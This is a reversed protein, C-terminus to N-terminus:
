AARECQLSEVRLRCHSSDDRSVNVADVKFERLCSSSYRVVCRLALGLTAVCSPPYLSFACRPYTGHSEKFCHWNPVDTVVVVVVVRAVLAFFFTAKKM